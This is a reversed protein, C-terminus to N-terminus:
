FKVLQNKNKKLDLPITVKWVVEQNLILAHINIMSTRTIPSPSSLTAQINKSRRLNSKLYSTTRYGTNVPTTAKHMLRRPMSVSAILPTGRNWPIKLCSHTMTMKLTTMSKRLRTRMSPTKISVMSFATPEMRMRLCGQHSAPTNLCSKLSHTMKISVWYSKPPPVRASPINTRCKPIYHEM